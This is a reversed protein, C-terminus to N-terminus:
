CACEHTPTGRLRSRSIARGPQDIALLTAAHRESECTHECRATRNARETGNADNRSREESGYHYCGLSECGPLESTPAYAHIEIKEASAAGLVNEAFRIQADVQELQWPCVEEDFDTGIIAEETVYRIPPLEQCGM